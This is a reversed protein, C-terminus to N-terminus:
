AKYKNVIKEKLSIFDFKTANLVEDKTGSVGFNDVSLIYSSDTAYKEWGFSSAAELTFTKVNKPMIMNKYEERQINYLKEVPMSIVRLDINNERKIQEALKIALSVETGTAVIIGDLREVEKVIYAGFAVKKPDTMELQEVDTRSLIIASPSMNQNLIINWMGIIEKADCPRYVYLNPISRLMALQEIPQHTPGDQGVLISDHTFIYTVPLNMLASLRISPKLYDSFCLFSSAFPRFNALALGNSIAGMAHERVGYRINRGLFNGNIVDGMQDLYANTTSAVDASGGIMFPIYKSIINMIKKNTVRTAETKIDDLHFDFDLFNCKLNNNFIFSIKKMYEENNSAEKYISAFNTYALNSRESVLKRYYNRAEEDVYFPNTPINLNYKLQKIDDDTLPKGHVANTGEQYSGKGIVTKIEILTPKKNNKAKIIAKNINIVSDDKVFEYDFGLSRVRGQVSETFTAETTGDLSVSNSDYLIILNDLNLTGALSMAEYSIGEMLDGDGCLVYVNHDILSKNNYITRAKQMKEAIALGVGMAIGQGLPGTSVDVGPTIGLEPHGPTRSPFRRFKKLDDITINFGAMYLTAYLLASGHGASMVFRDRNVWSPDSTAVNMHYGYLTYLIPAAGLAIGPHGSNAEHIMDIALSKINNIIKEDM